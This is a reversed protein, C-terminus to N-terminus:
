CPVDERLRDAALVGSVACFSVWQGPHTASGALYLGRVHPSRHALRGARMFAATMVPNMSDRFLLFQRGWEAPTRTELVRVEGLGQRWWPEALIRDLFQRQGDPGLREAEAHRMPALLRAPHWGDRALEPVVTAPRILLRCLEGGGPLRFRLYPGEAPGRVVLYACVGPSQLPLSGLQEKVPAPTGDALELYTGVGPANSLVADASHMEGDATVVGEARGARCRIARVQMGLRLDVGAARVAEAL